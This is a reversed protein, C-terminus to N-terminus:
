VATRPLRRAQAPNSRVEQDGSTGAPEPSEELHLVYSQERHKEAHDS